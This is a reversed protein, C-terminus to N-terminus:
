SKTTLSSRSRLSSSLRTKMKRYLNVQIGIYFLFSFTYYSNKFLLFIPLHQDVYKQFDTHPFACIPQLTMMEMIALVIDFANTVLYFACSSFLITLPSRMAQPQPFQLHPNNGNSYVITIEKKHVGHHVEIRRGTVNRSRYLKWIILINAIIIILAPGVRFMVDFWKDVNIWAQYHRPLNSNGGPRGHELVYYYVFPSVMCIVAAAFYTLGVLGFCIRKRIKISVSHHIPKIMALYRDISFMVLIGHSAFITITLMYMWIGNTALHFNIFPLAKTPDGHGVLLGTGWSVMLFVWLYILDTIFLAVLFIDRPSLNTRHGAARAIQRSRVLLGIGLSNGITGIILFIPYSITTVLQMDKIARRSEASMDKLRPFGCSDFRSLQDFASDNFVFVPNITNNFLQQM